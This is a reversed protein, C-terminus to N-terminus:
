TNELTKTLYYMFYYKSLLASQTNFVTFKLPDTTCCSCSVM